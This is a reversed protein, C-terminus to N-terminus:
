AFCMTSAFYHIQQWNLLHQNEKKKKENWVPLFTYLCM